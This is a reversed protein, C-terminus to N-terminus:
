ANPGAVTYRSKGTAPDWITIGHQAGVLIEKGDPTFRVGLVQKLNPAIWGKKPKGTAAEWFEVGKDKDENHCSWTAVTQGDPSLSADCVNEPLSWHQRERGDALDWFRIVRDRSMMLTRGAAFRLTRIGQKYRGLVQSTGTVVSWAQLIAEQQMMM